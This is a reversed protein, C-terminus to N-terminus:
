HTTKQEIEPVFGPELEPEPDPEPDPKPEPDPESEEQEKEPDEDPNDKDEVPKEEEDKGPNIEAKEESDNNKKKEDKTEEESGVKSDTQGSENKSTDKEVVEGESDYRSEDAEDNYANPNWSSEYVASNESEHTSEVLTEETDESVEEEETEEALKLTDRAIEKERIFKFNKINVKTTLQVKPKKPMENIKNTKVETTEQNFTSKQPSNQNHLLIISIITIVSFLNLTIIVKKWKSKDEM